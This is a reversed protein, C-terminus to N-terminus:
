SSALFELLHDLFRSLNAAMGPATLHGRSREAHPGVEAPLARLTPGIPRHSHRPDTVISCHDKMTEIHARWRKLGKGGLLVKSQHHGRLGVRRMRAVGVPAPGRNHAPILTSKMTQNNVKNLHVERAPSETEGKQHGRDTGAAGERRYYRDGARRWVGEWM